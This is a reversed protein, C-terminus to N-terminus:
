RADPAPSTRSLYGAGPQLSAPRFVDVKRFYQDVVYVRGDEDVAIGSPLMYKAPGDTNSRGGVDLLLKGEATFIQFNGFATDVVYVNGAADIAIEKPRSFQGGQRGVGGFSRVFSGDPRMVQVRFNGGDVVYLLGDKGVAVDRPLNFEGEGEGRKGITSLHAGSKADFVQVGHNLSDIGGIDVVYVRNGAQDVAIGAPRKLVDPSGVYRLFKGDPSYVSIRRTGGDSVYVNGTGDIDIGLPSRLGGETQGGIERYVGQPFDFVMVLRRVTDTVFVRGQHVAIGYPKALGEGVKKEGTVLRRFDTKGDDRIVDASSYISREYIFRAPAPAPPFVPLDIPKRPPPPSVACGAVAIFLLGLIVSRTPSIILPLLRMNLGLSASIEQTHQALNTGVVQIAHDSPM